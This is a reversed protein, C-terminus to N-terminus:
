GGVKAAVFDRIVLVMYDIMEPTLGPYTGLFMTQKM